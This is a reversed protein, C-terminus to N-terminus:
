SFFFRKQLKRMAPTISFVTPLTTHSECLRPPAGLLDTWDPLGRWSERGFNRAGRREEDWWGSRDRGQSCVVHRILVSDLLSLGGHGIELKVRNGALHDGLRLQLLTQLKTLLLGLLLLLFSSSGGLGLLLNRSLLLLSVQGGVHTIFDLVM